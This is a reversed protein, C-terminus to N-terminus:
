KVFWQLYRGEGNNFSHPVMNTAGKSDPFLTGGPTGLNKSCDSTSFDYDGSGACKGFHHNQQWEGPNSFWGFVNNIYRLEITNKTGGKNPYVDIVADSNANLPTGSVYYTSYMNNGAAVATHSGAAWDWQTPYTTSNWVTIRHQYTSGNRLIVVNEKYDDNGDSAPTTYGDNNNVAGYWSAGYLKGESTMNANEWAKSLPDHMPGAPMLIGYNNLAWEDKMNTASDTIHVKLQSTQGSAPLTKWEDNTLRFDTYDIQFDTPAATKQAETPQIDATAASTTTKTTGKGVALRSRPTNKDVSWYTGTLEINNDNDFEYATKESISWVLTWGGGEMDCYTRLTASNGIKCNKLWYEGNGADPKEELIALCNCAPNDFTGLTSTFTVTFSCQTKIGGTTEFNYRFSGASKPTGKMTLRLEATGNTLGSGSQAVQFLVGNQQDTSFEIKETDKISLINVPVTVIQSGDNLKAQYNGDVRIDDCNVEYTMPLPNVTVRINEGTCNKGIQTSNCYFTLTDNDANTSQNAPVGSGTLTLNFLGTTQFIGQAQFYYGNGSLAMINYEGLDQQRVYIPLVVYNKNDLPANQYYKGYVKINDCIVSDAVINSKGECLSVWQENNWYQLCNITTNYILIGKAYPNVTGLGGDTRVPIQNRFEDSWAPVRIGQILYGDYKSNDTSGQAYAATTFAATLIFLLSTYIKRKM